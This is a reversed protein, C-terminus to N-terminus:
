LHRARHQHGSGRQIVGINASTEEDLRGLEMAAIAKAPRRFPAAAGSPSWAPTRPRAASPPRSRTTAPRRSPSAGWRGRPISCRPSRARSCRRTWTSPGWWDQRRACPSSCSTRRSRGAGPRSCSPRTCSPRSPRRTTPASSPATGTAFSGTTGSSRNSALRDARGHGPAGWARHAAGGRRGRHVVSKGRRRRDRGGTDDEHVTCARPGGSLRHGRRGHRARAPVPEPDSTFQLFLETLRERPRSAARRDNRADAPRDRRGRFRPLASAPQHAPEQVGSPVPLGRVLSPRAARHAGGPPRRAHRRQHGARSRGAGGPYVNNVEYRHRHRESILEEGYAEFAKTGPVLKTPSAGLRMTGGM